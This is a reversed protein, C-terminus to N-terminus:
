AGRTPLHYINVTVHIFKTGQKILQQAFLQFIIAM